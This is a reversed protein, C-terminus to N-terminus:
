IRFGPVRKSLITGEYIYVQGFFLFLFYLMTMNLLSVLINKKKKKKKKSLCSFLINM